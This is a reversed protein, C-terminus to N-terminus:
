KYVTQKNLTLIKGEGKLEGEDKKEQELMKRLPWKLDKQDVKALATGGTAAM